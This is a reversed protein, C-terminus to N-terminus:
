VRIGSSAATKVPKGSAARSKERERSSDSASSAGNGCDRKGRSRSSETGLSGAVPSPPRMPRLAHPFASALVEPSPPSSPHELPHKRKAKQVRTRTKEAIEDLIM